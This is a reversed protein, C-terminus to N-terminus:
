LFIFEQLPMSEAFLQGQLRSNAIPFMLTQCCGRFLFAATWHNHSSYHSQPHCPAQFDGGSGQSCLFPADQLFVTGAAQPCSVVLVQVTLGSCWVTKQPLAFLGWIRPQSPSPIWPSPRDEVHWCSCCCGPRRCHKVAESLVLKEWISCINLSFDRVYSFMHFFLVLGFYIHPQVFMYEYLAIQGRWCPKM